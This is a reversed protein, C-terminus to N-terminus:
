SWAGAAKGGTGMLYSIPHPYKLSSRYKRSELVGDITVCVKSKTKIACWFPAQEFVSYLPFSRRYKPNSIELFCKLVDVRLVLLVWCRVSDVVSREVIGVIGVKLNGERTNITLFTKLGLLSCVHLVGKICAKQKASQAYFSGNTWTLKCFPRCKGTTHRAVCFAQM